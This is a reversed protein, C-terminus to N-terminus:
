RCVGYNTNMWNKYEGAVVHTVQAENDLYWQVSKKLGTEFTEQPTWGLKRWIKCADIAYPKDHSPRDAVDVVGCDSKAILLRILASGIFCTGGTIFITQTTHTPSIKSLRYHKM